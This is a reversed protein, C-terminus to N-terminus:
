RLPPQYGGPRHRAGRQLGRPCLHGYQGRGDCLQRVWRVRAPGAADLHLSLDLVRPLWPEVLVAGQAALVRALWGEQAASRAEGPLWRALGRGSTGLPAKLVAPLAFRAHVEAEFHDHGSFTGVRVRAGPLAQEIRQKVEEVTVTPQM